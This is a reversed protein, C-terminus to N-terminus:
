ILEKFERPFEIKMHLLYAKDITLLEHYSQSESKVTFRNKLGEFVESTEQKKSGDSDLASKKEEFVSM